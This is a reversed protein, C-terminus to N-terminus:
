GYDFSGSGIEQDRQYVKFWPRQDRQRPSYKSGAADVLAYDLKLVSGRRKATVTSTVPAGVELRHSRGPAVTFWESDDSLWRRATFGGQLDVQQLRYEGPPVSVRPGPRKLNRQQGARDVLVLSEIGKGAIELTGQELTGQAGGSAPGPVAPEAAGAAMASLWVAISFVPAARSLHTPTKVM